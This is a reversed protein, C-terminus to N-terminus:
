LFIEGNQNAIFIMDDITEFFTRFNEESSKLKEETLRRETIDRAAGYILDGIRRSHWEIYRYDGYKTRYRNIFSTITEQNSLSHIHEITIDIDEPHIYKLLSTKELEEVEYGLVSSWASNVKVFMNNADAVAYLDLYNDFSNDLETLYPLDNNLYMLYTVVMDSQPTFATIRYATQTEASVLELEMRRGSTLVEMMLAFSQTRENTDDSLIDNVSMGLPENLNKKELIKRLVYNIDTMVFDIVNGNKDYIANYCAYGIPQEKIIQKYFKENLM